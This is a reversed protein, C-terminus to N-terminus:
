WVGSILRYKVREAYEKYGELKNKLTNDEFSTRIIFLIVTMIAPILAWVSGLIIPTSILYIIMGLYGPHRIHRYPGGSSVTHGRDYQIRVSTSFYTNAMMAWSVLANGSIFTILAIIHIWLALEPSWGFRIDWGSILYLTLWPFIIFGSIIKDWKEVNEKKRGRESILEPPFIFANTIIVLLSTLIYIWAYIWKIRGASVLLIIATIIISMSVQILRRLINKATDPKSNDQGKQDTMKSVEM